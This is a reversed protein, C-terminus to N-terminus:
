DEDNWPRAGGLPRDPRPVPARSPAGLPPYTRDPLDHISAAATAIEEPSGHRFAADEADQGAGTDRPRRFVLVNRVTRSSGSFLGQREESPLSEARVYEWGEAAMENMAQELAHAFREAPGKAGRVRRGREPAPLVRYEYLVPM